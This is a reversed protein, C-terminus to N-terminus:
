SCVQERLCLMIFKCGRDQHSRIFFHRLLHLRLHLTLQLQNRTMSNRAGGDIVVTGDDNCVLYLLRRLQAVTNGGLMEFKRNVTWIFKERQNSMCPRDKHPMVGRFCQSVIHSPGIVGERGTPTCTEERWKRQVIKDLLRAEDVAGLRSQLADTTGCALDGFHCPEIRM